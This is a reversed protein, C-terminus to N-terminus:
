SQQHKVIFIKENPDQLPLPDRQLHLFAGAPHTVNVDAPNRLLSEVGHTHEARWAEATIWIPIFCHLFSIDVIGNKLCPKVELMELSVLWCLPRLPDTIGEMVTSLLSDVKRSDVKWVSCHTLSTQISEAQQLKRSEEAWILVTLELLVSSCSKRLRVGKDGCIHSSIITVLRDYNTSKKPFIYLFLGGYM